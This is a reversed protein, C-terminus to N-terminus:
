LVVAWIEPFSGKRSWVRENVADFANIYDRSPFVKVGQIFVVPESTAAACLKYLGIYVAAASRNSQFYTFNRSRIRRNM